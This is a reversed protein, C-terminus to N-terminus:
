DKKQTGCHETFHLYADATVIFGGPVPIGAQTLEGLNAGKGGVTMVDDKGTETFNRIYMERAGHETQSTRISNSLEL